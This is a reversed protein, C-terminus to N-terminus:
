EGLFLLALLESVDLALQVGVYCARLRWRGRRLREDVTSNPANDDGMTMRLSLSLVLVDSILELCLLGVFAGVFAEQNTSVARFLLMAAVLRVLTAVLRVGVYLGAAIGAASSVEQMM